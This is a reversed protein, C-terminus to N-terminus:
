ADPNNILYVKRAIAFLAIGALAGIVAPGAIISSAAPIASLILGKALTGVYGGIMTAVMGLGVSSTDEEDNNSIKEQVQNTKKAFNLMLTKMDNQDLEEAAENLDAQVGGQALAKELQAMMAPDKAIQAAIKDLEPSNEIKSALPMAKQIAQDPTINEVEDLQSENLIGALLQMRKIENFQTKM